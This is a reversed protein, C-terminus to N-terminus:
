GLSMGLCFPLVGWRGHSFSCVLVPLYCRTRTRIRHYAVGAAVHGGTVIDWIFGIFWYLIHMISISFTRPLFTHMIYLLAHMYFFPVLHACFCCYLLFLFFFCHFLCFVVMFIYVHLVFALLCFLGYIYWVILCLVTIYMHLFRYVWCVLWCFCLSCSSLLLSIGIVYICCGVGCLLVLLM